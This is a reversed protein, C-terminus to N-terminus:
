PQRRGEPSDYYGFPPQFAFTDEFGILKWGMRDQNGGYKPHSFFGMLTHARVTGFFETKEIGRLVEIQRASSLDSFRGGSREALLKLGERYASQAETEFEALNLDIFRIVGAERAGGTEDTPLIQAAVSEIEKAEDPTFFKLSRPPPTPDTHGHQQTLAAWVAGAHAASQRLIERRSLM